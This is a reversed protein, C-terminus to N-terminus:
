CAVMVLGRNSHDTEMAVMVLGRNSHETGQCSWPSGMGPPLQWPCWSLGAALARQWPLWQGAGDGPGHSGLLVSNSEPCLFPREDTHIRKHRLLSSSSQFRKQCQPCEYPREGTHIRQHIIFQSRCSFGKGCEGCEYAWEGTHIMQHRILGSSQRFSKGCELCKYPKEGDHLQGHVVLESSQSFSQGGEQNLTPREEESYGPRAKSGRRRHSRQPNEEGKSEQALSCPDGLSKGIHTRGVPSSAPATCSARRQHRTLNFSSTFSKGYQPCEYPREGTHTRQHTILTFNHKFGKGCDPCCFPREGTHIREHLHLNSSTQFRKGCQPCEYSREGTHIDQRLSTLASGLAGLTVTLAARLSHEGPISPCRPLVQIKSCGATGWTQLHRLLAPVIGPVDQLSMGGTGSQTLETGFRVRIRTEI